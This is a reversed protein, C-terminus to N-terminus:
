MLYEMYRVNKAAFLRLNNTWTVERCCTGAAVQDVPVKDM